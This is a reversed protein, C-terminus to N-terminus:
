FCPPDISCILSSFLLLIILGDAQEYKAPFVAFSVYRRAGYGYSPSRRYRPSASSHTGNIVTLYWSRPSLASFLFSGFLSINMYELISFSQLITDTEAGSLLSTSHRYRRAGYSPSRRYRPSARPSKGRGGTGLGGAGIRLRCERAFHGPEGCEYCKMDDGGRGRPGGGGGSSRSLEVRWGNKGVHCFECLLSFDSGAHTLDSVM